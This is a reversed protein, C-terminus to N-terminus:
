GEVEHALVWLCDSDHHEWEPRGNSMHKTENLSEQNKAYEEYTSEAWSSQCFKCENTEYMTSVIPSQAKIQEVLEQATM